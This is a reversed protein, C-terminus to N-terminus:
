GEWSTIPLQNKQLVNSRNRDGKQQKDRRSDEKEKGSHSEGARDLSIEFIIREHHLKEQTHAPINIAKGINQRQRLHKELKKLIGKYLKESQKWSFFM